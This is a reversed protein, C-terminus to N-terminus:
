ESTNHPHKAESLNGPAVESRTTQEPQPQHLHVATRQLTAGEALLQGLGLLELMEAPRISGRPLNPISFILYGNEILIGFNSHGTECAIVKDDRQIELKEQQLVEKVRQETAPQLEAPLAVRYTAGLVRAKGLAYNPSELSLLEMGAPTQERIRNEIDELRVHGLVELEVIEDLAEIGLALASPFNIRPKPHFGQSFALQLDARRLLREWVRALDRHGIWQLDGQKTFRIRLRTKEM